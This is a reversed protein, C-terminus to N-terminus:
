SPWPAIRELDPWTELLAAQLHRADGSLADDPDAAVQGVLALGATVDLALIQRLASWRLSRSQPSCVIRAMDPVADRRGMRGLLAMALERRSDAELAAARHLLTGDPMSYERVPHPDAFRRQLRLMVLSPRARRVQLTERSGHRYLTLGPELKVTGSQLLVRGDEQVGDGERCLVLDAEGEGALVHIWTEHPPFDATKPAPMRDLMAGDYAALALNARGSRALVLAPAARRPSHPLPLQGLPHADLAALGASVFTDALARASASGTRFLAALPACRELPAGQGFRAMAALVAAATPEGRWAALARAMAAQGDRCEGSDERLAALAQRLEM